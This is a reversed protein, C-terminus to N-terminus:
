NSALVRRVAETLPQASLPGVLRTVGSPLQEDGRQSILIRVDPRIEKLQRVVSAASSRLEARNLLVLSVRAAAQRFLAVAQSGDDALAVTYGCRELTTKAILRQANDNEAVLIFEGSDTRANVEPGTPLGLAHRITSTMQSSTAFNSDLAAFGAVVLLLLACLFAIGLNATDRLSKRPRDYGYTLSRHSLDQGDGGVVKRGADETVLIAEHRIGM